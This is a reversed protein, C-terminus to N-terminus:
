SPAPRSRGTSSWCECLNDATKCLFHLGEPSGLPALSVATLPLVVNCNKSETTHTKPHPAGPGSKSPTLHMMLPPAKMIRVTVTKM